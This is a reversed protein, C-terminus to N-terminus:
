CGSSCAAGPSARQKALGFTAITVLFQQLHQHREIEAHVAAFWLGRGNETGLQVLDLSPVPAPFVDVRVTPGGYGRREQLVRAQVLRGDTRRVSVADVNKSVAITATAFDGRAGVQIVDDVLPVGLHVTGDCMDDLDSSTLPRSPCEASAASALTRGHRGPAALQRHAPMSGREYEILM